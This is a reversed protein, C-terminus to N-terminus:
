EEAEFTMFGNWISGLVMTICNEKIYAESVEEDLLFSYEMRVKGDRVVATPLNRRCNHRNCLEYVDGAPEYTPSAAAYSLRNNSVMVFVVVNHGFDSDADQIVVMDGDEDIRTPINLEDFYKRIQQLDIM